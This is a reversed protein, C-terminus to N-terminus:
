KVDKKYGILLKKLQAMEGQSERFAKSLSYMSKMNEILVWLHYEKPNDLNHVSGSHINQRFLGPLKITTKVLQDLAADVAKLQAEAQEIVDLLPKTSGDAAETLHKLKPLEM